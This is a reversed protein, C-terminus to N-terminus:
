RKINSDLNLTLNNKNEQIKLLKEYNNLGNDNILIQINKFIIHLLSYKNIMEM